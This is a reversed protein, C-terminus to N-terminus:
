DSSVAANRAGTQPSLPSALTALDRRRLTIALRLVTQRLRYAGKDASQPMPMPIRSQMRSWAVQYVLAAFGACFALLYLTATLM